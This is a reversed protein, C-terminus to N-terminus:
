ISTKSYINPPIPFIYIELYTAAVSMGVSKRVLGYRFERSELDKVVLRSRNM